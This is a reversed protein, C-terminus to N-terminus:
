DDMGGKIRRRDTQTQELVRQFYPSDAFSRRPPHVVKHNITQGISHDLTAFRCRYYFSVIPNLHLLHFPVAVISKAHHSGYTDETGRSHAEMIYIVYGQEVSHIWKLIGKRRIERKYRVSRESDVMEIYSGIHLPPSSEGPKLIPETIIWPVRHEHVSRVQADFSQYNYSPPYQLYPHSRTPKQSRILHM